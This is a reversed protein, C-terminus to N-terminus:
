EGSPVWHPDELGVANPDIVRYGDCALVVDGDLVVHTAPDPQDSGCSPCDGRLVCPISVREADTAFVTAGSVVDNVRQLLEAVRGVYQADDFNLNPM